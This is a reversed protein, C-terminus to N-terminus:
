DVSVITVRSGAQEIMREVRQRARQPSPAKVKATKGNSLKVSFTPWNRTSNVNM